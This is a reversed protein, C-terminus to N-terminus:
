IFKSQTELPERVHRSHTVDNRIQVNADRCFDEDHRVPKSKLEHIFIPVHPQGAEDINGQWEFM